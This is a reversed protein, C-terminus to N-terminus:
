PTPGWTWTEDNPVTGPRPQGGFFVIRSTAPDPAVAPVQGAPPWASPLPSPTLTIWTRAGGDWQWVLPTDIVFSADLLLDSGVAILRGPCPEAAVM